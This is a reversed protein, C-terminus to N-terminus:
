KNLDRVTEEAMDESITDIKSGLADLDLVKHKPKRLDQNHSTRESWQVSHAFDEDGQM